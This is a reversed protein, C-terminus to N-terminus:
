RSDKGHQIAGTALLTIVFGGLTFQFVLDPTSNGGSLLYIGFNFWAGITLLYMLFTLKVM